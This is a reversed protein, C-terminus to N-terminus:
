CSFHQSSISLILTNAMHGDHSRGYYYYERSVGRGSENTTKNNEFWTNTNDLLTSGYLQAIQIIYEISLQNNLRPENRVFSVIKWGRNCGHCVLKSDQIQKCM